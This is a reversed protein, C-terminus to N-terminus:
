AAVAADGDGIVRNRGAKKAHYLLADARRVFSESGEEHRLEAVGASVTVVGLMEGSSKRSLTRAGVRRRLEDVLVHAEEAGMQPLLLAFEEGGYRAVLAESPAGSRLTSAVYRIIQDGVPHGWTDNIQKFRDIDCLALCLPRGDECAERVHRSLSRDFHRRNALGTLGDTIAELTAQRVSLQLTEMQMSSADMQQELLRNRSAVARTEAILGRVLAPLKSPDAVTEMSSAAAELSGAYGGASASVERLHALAAALEHAISEGTQALQEFSRTPVFHREYLDECLAPTLAEGAAFLEEIERNLDPFTGSRYTAWLEYNPPTPAVTKEGLQDIVSHAFVLGAAGAYFSTEGSM